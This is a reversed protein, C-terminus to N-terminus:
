VFLPIRVGIGVYFDRHKVIIAGEFMLSLPIANPKITEEYEKKRMARRPQNSSTM